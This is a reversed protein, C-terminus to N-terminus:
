GTGKANGREAMGVWAGGYGEQPSGLPGPVPCLAAPPPNGTLLLSQIHSPSGRLQSLQLWALLCVPGM